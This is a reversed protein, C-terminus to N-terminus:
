LHLRAISSHRAWRVNTGRITRQWHCNYQWTAKSIRNAFVWTTASQNPPHPTTTASKQAFVDNLCIPVDKFQWLRIATSYHADQKNTCVCVPPYSLQNSRWTSMTSTTPEFGIEGVLISIMMVNNVSVRVVVVVTITAHHATMTTKLCCLRCFAWM